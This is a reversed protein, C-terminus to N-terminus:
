QKDSVVVNHVEHGQADTGKFESTRTKGDASIKSTVTMIVKGAKKQTTVITNANVRKVAVTDAGSPLGTAPYDKGDFKAEYQAHLPSDDGNVGQADVKIGKEDSEIKVTLSKQAPGPSFKSKAPDMKWTGSHQDAAAIGVCLVLLSSLLLAGMAWIRKAKM